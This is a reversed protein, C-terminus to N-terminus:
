RTTKEAKMDHNVLLARLGYPLETLTLGASVYSNERNEYLDGFMLRIAAKIDSPVTSATDGYGAVFTIIVGNIDRLTTTPWSATSKIFIRGPKSYTDVIYDTSTVTYETDDADYYKISTVSQLPGKPLFIERGPWSDLVLQWTQTIFSSSTIREAYQRAGKVMDAILTDEDAIDIRSQAKADAISVPEVTPATSLKLAM